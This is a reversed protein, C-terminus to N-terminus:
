GRVVGSLNSRAAPEWWSGGTAESSEGVDVRGGLDIAITNGSSSAMETGISLAAAGHEDWWQQAQRPTWPEVSQCASLADRLAIASEPRDAPKKELCKLIVDELDKPIPAESRKSPPLPVDHLHQSCVAIVTKGDFVHQGTLLYYAVAGLSYLDSRADVPSGDIMEPAMFLPTGTIAGAATLQVDDEATDKVLGFDLVKPLDHAARQHTLIINSPKIDRHVLGRDHAESLAGCVQTLIHVVRSPPLPGVREVLADLSPGHLYEMAYYFVGDPTCGYDFISITNPHTLTSTTQVEREFRALQAEGGASEILLKVATPRRLMAHRAQYVVGMGGQGIKRVLRYQGLQRAESARERLGFIVQSSVTNVVVTLLGWALTMGTYALRDRLPDLTAARLHLLFTALTVMVAVTASLILTRVGRSPVIASRFGLTLVCPLLVFMEVHAHERAGLGMGMWCACVGLTFAADVAHIVHVSYRSRRLALWVLGALTSGAIHFPDLATATWIALDNTALHELGILVGLFALSLVFVVSAYFAVRQQLFVRAESSNIPATGWSFDLPM